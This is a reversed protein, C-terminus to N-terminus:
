RTAFKKGTKKATPYKSHKALIPQPKSPASVQHTVRKAKPAAARRKSAAKKPAARRAPARKPTTAEVINEKIRGVNHRANSVARKVDPSRAVQQVAGVVESAKNSIRESVPTARQRGKEAARKRAEAEARARNKAEKQARVAKEKDYAKREIEQLWAKEREAAEAQAKRNAMYQKVMEFAEM